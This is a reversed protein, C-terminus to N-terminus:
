QPPTARDRHDHRYRWGPGLRAIRARLRDVLLDVAERPTGASITVRVLRGNLDVTAHATVPRTRAPDRHRTVVVTSHLVPLGTHRLAADIKRQTYPVLDNAIPGDLEVVTTSATAPQNHVM